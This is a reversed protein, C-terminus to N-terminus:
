EGGERSWAVLDFVMFNQNVRIIRGIEDVFIQVDFKEREVQFIDAEYRKGDVTVTDQGILSMVVSAPRRTGADLVDFNQRGGLDRDYWFLFPEYTYVSGTELIAAGTSVVVNRAAGAKQAGTTVVAVNAFMEIDLQMAMQDDENGVEKDQHYEIPFFSDERVL